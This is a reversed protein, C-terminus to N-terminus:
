NPLGAAEFKQLTKLAEKPEAIYIQDRVATSEKELANSAIKHGAEDAKNAPDRWRIYRLFDGYYMVRELKDEPFVFKGSTLRGLFDKFNDPTRDDDLFFKKRLETYKESAIENLRIELHNRTEQIPNYTTGEDIDYMRKEKKLQPAQPCNPVPNAQGTSFIDLVVPSDPTSQSVFGQVALAKKLLMEKKERNM